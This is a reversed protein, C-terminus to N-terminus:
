KGAGGIGNGESHVASGGGETPPKLGHLFDSEQGGSMAWGVDAHSIWAALTKM